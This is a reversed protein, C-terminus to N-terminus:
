GNPDTETVYGLLAKLWLSLQMFSRVTLKHVIYIIVCPYRHLIYKYFAQMIEYSQRPPKTLGSGLGSQRSLAM